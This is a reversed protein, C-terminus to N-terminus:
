PATTFEKSKALTRLSEEDLGKTLFYVQGSAIPLLLSFIPTSSYTIQHSLYDSDKDVAVEYDKNLKRRVTITGDGVTLSALGHRKAERQLKRAIRCTLKYRTSEKIDSASEQMTDEM